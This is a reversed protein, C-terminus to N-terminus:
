CPGPKQASGTMRVSFPIGSDTSSQSIEMRDEGIIMEGEFGRRRAGELLKSRALPRYLHSCILLRCQARAALEMIEDETLHGADIVVLAAGRAFNVEAEHFGSDGTLAVMGGASEFRIGHNGAPPLHVSEVEIEAIRQRAEIPHPLVSFREFQGPKQAGCLRSLTAVLEDLGPPGYLHLDETRPDEPAHAAAHLYPILDSFHDPHYHSLVIHEIDNQRLGLAALRGAVGRGIDFVLRSESIEVLVSSAVRSESLECTGTGLLILRDTM